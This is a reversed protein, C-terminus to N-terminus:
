GTALSSQTWEFQSETTTGQAQGDMYVKYNVLGSGNDLLPATWQITIETQTSSKKVVLLPESPVEAAIFADSVESLESEGIDNVASVKFRYLQAAQINSDRTYVLTPYSVSGSLSFDVLNGDWYIRHEKIANGGDYQEQWTITVQGVDASVLAISSPAEPVAAPTILLQESAPGDGHM